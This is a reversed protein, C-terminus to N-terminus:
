CISVKKRPFKIDIFVTETDVKEKKSIFNMTLTKKSLVRNTIANVINKPYTNWSAFTRISQPERPQKNKLM